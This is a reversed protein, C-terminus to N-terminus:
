RTEGGNDATLRDLECRLTAVLSQAAEGDVLTRGTPSFIAVPTDFRFVYWHYPKVAVPGWEDGRGFRTPVSEDGLAGATVFSWGPQLAFQYTWIGEASLESATGRTPAGDVFSVGVAEAIKASLVAAETVPDSASRSASM